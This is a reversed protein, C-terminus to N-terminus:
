MCRSSTPTKCKFFSKMSERFHIDFYGYILPNVV